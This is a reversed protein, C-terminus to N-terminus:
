AAFGPGCSRCEDTATPNRVFAEDRSLIDSWIDDLMVRQWSADSLCTQQSYARTKGAIAKGTSLGGKCSIMCAM